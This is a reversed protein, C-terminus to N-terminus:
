GQPNDQSQATRRRRRRYLVAMSLAILVGEAILILIVIMVPGRRQSAPPSSKASPYDPAPPAIEFFGIHLESAPVFNTLHVQFHDADLKEVKGNAPSCFSVLSKGGQEPQPREVILTFNEIPRKWTNATTLIFDVWETDGEEDNPNNAQAEQKMGELFPQDPCFGELFSLDESTGADQKVNKRENIPKRALDFTEPAM